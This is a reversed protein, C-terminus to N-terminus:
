ERSFAQNGSCPIFALVRLVFLVEEGEVPLQETGIEEDDSEEEEDDLLPEEHGVMEELEETDDDDFEAEAAGKQPLHSNRKMPRHPLFYFLPNGMRCGHIAMDIQRFVQKIRVDFRAMTAHMFPM